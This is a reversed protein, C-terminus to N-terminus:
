PRPAGHKVALIVCADDMHTLGLKECKAFVADLGAGPPMWATGIGLGYAEDIIKETVAPPVVPVVVEAIAPLADLSKYCPAEDISEYRPFV